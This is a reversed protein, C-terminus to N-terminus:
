RISRTEITMLYQRNEQMSFAEICHGLVGVIMLALAVGKRTPADISLLLLALGFLLLVTYTVLGGVFSSKIVREMRATEERKIDREDHGSYFLVAEEARAKVVVSYGVGAGFQFLGAVIFVYAMGRALSGTSATKWLLLSLLMLAIGVAMAGMATHREAAYYRQMLEIM